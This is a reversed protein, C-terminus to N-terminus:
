RIEKYDKKLRLSVSRTFATKFDVSEAFLDKLLKATVWIDYLESM